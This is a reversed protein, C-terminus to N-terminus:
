KKWRQNLTGQPKGALDRERNIWGTPTSESFYDSRSTMMAKDEKHNSHHSHLRRSISLRCPRM